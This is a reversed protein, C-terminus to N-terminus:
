VYLKNISLLPPLSLDTSIKKRDSCDDFHNLFKLIISGYGDGSCFNALVLLNNKFVNYLGNFIEWTLLWGPTWICSM